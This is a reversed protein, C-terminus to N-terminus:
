IHALIMLVAAIDALGLLVFVTTSLPTRPGRVGYIERVLSATVIVTSGALYGALTRLVVSDQTILLGAVVVTHFVIIWSALVIASLTLGPQPRRASVLSATIGLVALALMIYLAIIM